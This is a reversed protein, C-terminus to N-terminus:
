YTISLKEKREFNKITNHLHRICFSAFRQLLLRSAVFAKGALCSHYISM